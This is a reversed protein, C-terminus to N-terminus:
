RVSIIRADPHTRHEVVRRQPPQSRGLVDHGNHATREWGCAPCYGYDADYIGSGCSPCPRTSTDARAEVLSALARRPGREPDQQRLAELRQRSSPGPNAGLRAAETRQRRSPGTIQFRTMSM